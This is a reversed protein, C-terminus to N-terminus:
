GGGISYYTESLIVAGGRDIAAFVMGNAHGPLAPGFEFVISSACDFALPPLGEPQLTATAKLDELEREAKDIDLASPLHGLLGIAVARDPDQLRRLRESVHREEVSVDDPETTMIAHRGM